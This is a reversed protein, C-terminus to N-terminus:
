ITKRQTESKEEDKTRHQKEGEGEGEGMREGECLSKYVNRIQNYPICNEKLENHKMTATPVTWLMRERKCDNVCVKNSVCACIFESLWMRVYM